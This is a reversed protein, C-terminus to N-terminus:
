RTILISADNRPAYAVFCDASTNRLSIAEDPSFGKRAIVYLVTKEM